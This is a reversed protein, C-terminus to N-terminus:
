PEILKSMGGDISAHNWLYVIIVGERWVSCNVRELPVLQNYCTMSDEVTYSGLLTPAM